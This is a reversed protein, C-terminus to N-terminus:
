YGGIYSVSVWPRGHGLLRAVVERAYLDLAKCLITGGKLPSPGGVIEEYIDEAFGARLERFSPIGCNRLVRRARNLTTQLFRQVNDARSLLCHSGKPMVSLAFELAYRRFENDPIARSKCKRGGKTGELIAASGHKEMERLMRPLDQLVAETVRMGFARCLLLVAAARLEGRAILISVAMHVDAIDAQIQTERVNSRAKGLMERASIKLRYDGRLIHMATNVTSLLNHAYSVSIKGDVDGNEWQYESTLRHRLYLGYDAVTERTIDRADRINHRRCYAAFVRIRTKHSRRTGFHDNKGYYIDFIILLVYLLKNGVGFNKKDARKIKKKRINRKKISM